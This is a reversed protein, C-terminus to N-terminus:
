KNTTENIIKENRKHSQIEINERFEKIKDAPIINYKETKENRTPEVQTNEQNESNYYNRFLDRVEVGESQLESQTERSRHEKYQFVRQEQIETQEFIM